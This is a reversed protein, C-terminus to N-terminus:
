TQNLQGQLYEMKRQWTGNAKPGNAKLRQVRLACSAACVWNFAAVMSHVIMVRDVALHCRFFGMSSCSVTSRLGRPFWRGESSM